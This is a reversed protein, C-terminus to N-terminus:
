APSAGPDPFSRDLIRRLFRLNILIYTLTNLNAIAAGNRIHPREIGLEVAQSNIREVASRQNYIHKYSDSQRDLSYRLRAGISTPMQATCGKKVFNAHQVPCAQGTPSPHLLPCVYKGWEGAVATKTRDTFTFKLPMPLGAACLPRGEADFHREGAKYGGKEAFPVAAFAAPDDPNHFYAHVYWADFAADLAAFRPKHGLRQEVQRMLPFFYSVDPQDFSQTMEALVFEGYNPVPVVALGSGYGWYYEGVQLGAASVPNAYPTPLTHRLEAPPSALKNHRRKCGLRCDPDGSPQKTKDYRAHVYAKPNNEKVWAIVHKTDIAVMDGAAVHRAHLETLILHVTDALLVQLVANPLNRLLRTFHRATPLSADADFGHRMSRSQATVTLPFGCLWLLAPNEVLYNRLDGMSGQGENLKILYAAVFAVYPVTPQGWNRMLDREPLTSWRLPGLLNLLRQAVPADAVFAPLSSPRCWLHHIDHVPTVPPPLLRQWLERGFNHVHVVISNGTM